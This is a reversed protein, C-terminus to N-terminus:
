QPRLRLAKTPNNVFYKQTREFGSTPIQYELGEPMTLSFEHRKGDDAKETLYFGLLFQSRLDDEIAKFIPTMDASRSGSLSGERDGFLFYKGGTKEALDRFGSAPTRVQIKGNRPEYLPIHIVYFSVRERIAANIVDKAKARSMNDLGDSLLIVIRRESRVRPLNTFSSVALAAADFIATHQNRAIPSVFADGAGSSDRGFPFVLSPTEAFRLVAVQSRENFHSFLSLAAHRQQSIIDRTSGSQDLAFLLAVRDLGRHLYLGSTVKDKDNLVLDAESLTEVPQKNKNRVRIPFVLLSTNVRLVEEDEVAQARAM